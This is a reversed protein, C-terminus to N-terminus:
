DIFVATPMSSRPIRSTITRRATVALARADQLYFLITLMNGEITCLYFKHVFVVSTEVPGEHGTFNRVTRFRRERRSVAAYGRHSNGDHSGLRLVHGYYPSMEIRTSLITLPVHAYQVCTLLLGTVSHYRWSELGYELIVKEQGDVM